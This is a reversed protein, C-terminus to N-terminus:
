ARAIESVSLGVAFPACSGALAFRLLYGHTDAPGQIPTPAPHVTIAPLACSTQVGLEGAKAHIRGAVLNVLEAATAARDEATADAGILVGNVEDVAAETVHVAVDLALDGAVVIQVTASLAMPTAEASSVQEVEAGLMMGFVQKVASVAEADIAPVMDTLRAIPGTPRVFRRIESAFVSPIFTRVMLEDYFSPASPRDKEEVIGVIRLPRSGAAERLKRVLMEANMIGLSGGVFVVDVASRRYQALAAASSEAERVLGYREAEVAFFHRFDLNGDVVLAPNDPGFLLDGAGGRWARPAPLKLSSLRDAVQDARIPKLLYGSINLDKLKIIVERRRESSVVVVPLDSMTDSARVAELVEHGTFAPLDIDLLMLDFRRRALQSLAEIGDESEVVGWGLHQGVIRRLVFRTAADDDCILVNM